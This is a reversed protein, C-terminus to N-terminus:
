NRAGQLMDGTSYTYRFSIERASEVWGLICNTLHFHCFFLLNDENNIVISTTNVTQPRRCDPVASIQCTERATMALAYEDRM